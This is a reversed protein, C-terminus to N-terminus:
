NNKQLYWSCSVGELLNFAVCAVNAAKGAIYANATTSYVRIKKM